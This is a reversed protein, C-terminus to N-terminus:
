EMKTKELILFQQKRGNENSNGEVKLDRLLYPTSPFLLKSIVIEKWKEISKLFQQKRGNQNSNGEVKKSNSNGEVKRYGKFLFFSLISRRQCSQSLNVKDSYAKITAIALTLPSKVIRAPTFIEFPIINKLM